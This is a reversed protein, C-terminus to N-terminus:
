VNIGPEQGHSEDCYFYFLNGDLDKVTFQRLGWLRRELPEVINAGLSKLEEYSADVDEAFIWHVAPEFPPTRKRFFIAVNGRSVAGVGLEQEACEPAAADVSERSPVPNDEATASEINGATPIILPRWAAPPVSFAMFDSSIFVRRLCPLRQLLGTSFHRPYVPSLNDIRRGATRHVLSPFHFVFRFGSISECLAM